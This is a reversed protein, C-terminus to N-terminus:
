RIYYGSVRWVAGSELMWIVKEAARKDNAFVSEFEVISYDGDPAGPLSHARAFKEPTRSVFKGFPKRTSGIGSVWKQRTVVSKLHASSVDWAAGLRGADLLALWRQTAAITDKDDGLTPQAGPEITPTQGPAGEPSPTASTNNPPVAPPVAPPAMPQAAVASFWASAVLTLVLRHTM